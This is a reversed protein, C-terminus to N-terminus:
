QVDNGSYLATLEATTLARSFVMVRAVVGDSMNGSGDLRCGIGLEHYTNDVSPWATGTGQEDIKGDWILDVRNESRHYRYGVMYWIGAEYSDTYQAPNHMSNREHWVGASDRAYFELPGREGYFMLAISDNTYYQGYHFVAPYDPGTDSGHLLNMWVLVTHDSSYDFSGTADGECRVPQRQSVSAHPAGNDGWQYGHGADGHCLITPYAKEEYQVGDLYLTLDNALSQRAYIAIYETWPDNSDNTFTLHWRYWEGVKEIWRSLDHASDNGQGYSGTIYARLKGIESIDNAMIWVSFTKTQGALVQIARATVRSGEFGADCGAAFEVKATYQGVYPPVETCQETVIPPTTGGATWNKTGNLTPDVFENTTGEEMVLAQSREWPGEVLRVPGEVEFRQGTRAVAYTVDGESVLSSFDLDLLAEGMVSHALGAYAEDLNARAQEARASRSEPDLAQAQEYLHIAQEYDQTEFYCDGLVYDLDALEDDPHGAGLVLAQDLHEAVLEFQGQAYLSLGLARRLEYDEPNQSVANPLYEIARDYQALEFYALGV